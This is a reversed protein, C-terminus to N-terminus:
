ALSKFSQILKDIAIKSKRFSDIMGGTDVSNASGFRSLMLDIRQMLSSFGDNLAAISKGIHQKALEIQVSWLPVVNGILKDLSNALLIERIKPMARQLIRKAINAVIIKANVRNAAIAVFYLAMLLVATLYVMGTSYELSLIAAASLVGTLVPIWAEQMLKRMTIREKM